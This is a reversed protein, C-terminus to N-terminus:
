VIWSHGLDFGNHKHLSPSYIWPILDSLCFAQLFISLPKYCQVPPLSWFWRLSFSLCFSLTTTQATVFLQSLLISLCALFPFVYKVSHLTGSFLLSLYFPRRLYVICLFLPFCCFLFSWLDRWPFQFQWPFIEHLLPMISSLFPLPRVVVSPILCFLRLSGSLWSLTTM